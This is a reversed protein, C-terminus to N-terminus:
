ECEGKRSYYKSYIELAEEEPIDCNPNGQVDNYIEINNEKCYNVWDNRVELWISDKCNKEEIEVKLNRYGYFISISMLVFFIILFVLSVKSSYIYLM